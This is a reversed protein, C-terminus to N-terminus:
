DKVKFFTEDAIKILKNTAEKSTPDQVMIFFIDHLEEIRELVKDKSKEERLSIYLNYLSIDLEDNIKEYSTLESMAAVNYVSSIMSRYTYDDVRM